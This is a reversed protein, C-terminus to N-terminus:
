SEKIEPQVHLQQERRLEAFLAAFNDSHNRLLIADNGKPPLIGSSDRIPVYGHAYLMHLLKRRVASQLHQTEYM